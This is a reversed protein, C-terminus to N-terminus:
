YRGSHRGGNAYCKWDALAHDNAPTKISEITMEDAMKDRGVSSLVEDEEDEQDTLKAIVEESDGLRSAKAALKCESRSSCMIEISVADGHAAMQQLASIEDM